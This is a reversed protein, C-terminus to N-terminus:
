GKTALRDFEDVPIAPSTTFAIGTLKTLGLSAQVAAAPSPLDVILLLDDEGLTAYMAQVKGGHKEIEAKAKGTRDASIGRLADPNYRGKLIYTSM